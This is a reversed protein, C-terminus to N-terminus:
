KASKATWPEAAYGGFKEDRYQMLIVNAYPLDTFKKQIDVRTIVEGYSNYILETDPPAHANMPLNLYLVKMEDQDMIRSQKFAKSLIQATQNELIQARLLRSKTDADRSLSNTSAQTRVSNVRDDYPSTDGEGPQRRMIKDTSSFNM